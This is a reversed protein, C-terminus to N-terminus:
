QLGAVPADADRGNGAHAADAERNRVGHHLLAIYAASLTQHLQIAARCRGDDTASAGDCVTQPFADRATYVARSGIPRYIVPAAHVCSTARCYAGDTLLDLIVEPLAFQPVIGLPVTQRARRVILPTARADLRDTGGSEWFATTGPPGLRYGGDRFGEGWVGLPPLHDGYAVVVADPDRAEIAEIFDAVAASDYYAANAVKVAWSDGAFVARRLRPNLDLPIHGSYTVVYDFIPGERARAREIRPLTQQFLAADSLYRGDLDALEFDADYYREAFGLAVYARGINFFRPPTPASALTRYGYRQLLAPLCPMAAGTFTAFEIGALSYAPVGCLVEFEARASQGGYTPSLAVSRGEQLWRRFRGDLPDFPFQVTRFNLPDIFSELHIVHLNRSPPALTALVEPRIVGTAGADIPQALLRRIMVAKALQRAVTFLPGNRWIELDPNWTIDPRVALSLSEVIDPVTLTAAAFAVLPLLLLGAQRTGPWRLNRLLGVSLALAVAVLAAGWGPSLVAVVEGLSRLDYLTFSEQLIVSKAFCGGYFALLVVTWLIAARRPRHQFTLAVMSFYGVLAVEIALGPRLWRDLIVRSAILLFVTGLGTPLCIWGYRAIAHKVRGPVRHM